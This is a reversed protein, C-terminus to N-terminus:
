TVGQKFIGVSADLISNVTRKPQYEEKIVAGWLLGKLVVLEGSNGRSKIWSLLGM